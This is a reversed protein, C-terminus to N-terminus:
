LDNEDAEMMRLRRQESLYVDAEKWSQFGSKVKSIEHKRRDEGLKWGIILRTAWVDGKQYIRGTGKKRIKRKIREERRQTGCFPCYVAYGPIQKSCKDCIM